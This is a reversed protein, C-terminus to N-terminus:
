SAPFSCSGALRHVHNDTFFMSAFGVIGSLIVLMVSAAEYRVSLPREAMHGHWRAGLQLACIGPVMGVIIAVSLAGNMVNVVGLDDVAVAVAAVGVVIATAVTRTAGPDMTVPTHASHNHRVEEALVLVLDHTRLGASAEEPPLSETGVVRHREARAGEGVVVRTGCALGRTFSMHLCREGAAVATVLVPDEDLVVKSGVPAPCALACAPHGHPGLRPLKASAGYRPRLRLSGRVPRGPGGDAAPPLQLPAAPESLVELVVAYERAAAGDVFVLADREFGRTDAVRLTAIGTAREVTIPGTLETHVLRGEYIDPPSEPDEVLPEDLPELPPHDCRVRRWPTSSLGHRVSDRLLELLGQMWDAGRMLPQVMPRLMNPYVMMCAVSIAVQTSQGWADPSLNRLVNSSVTPGYALYGVTAFSCILVFIFAFSPVLVCRFFKSPDQDDRRLQTYYEPICMQLVVAFVLNSLCTLAGPAVGFTCVDSALGNSKFAALLVAFLYLNALVGVASSYTLFALDAWCLPLCILTCLGILPRRDSLDYCGTRMIPAIADGVVIMYGVLAGFNSVNVAVDWVVAFVPLPKPAQRLLQGLDDIRYGPKRRTGIWRGEREDWTAPGGWQDIAHVIIMVTWGNVVLVVAAMTHSMLLSAGAAGWPVVLLGSGLGCTIVKLATGFLSEGQEGERSVHM